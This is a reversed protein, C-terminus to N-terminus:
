RLPIDHTQKSDTTVTYKLDSTEPNGYHQPIPVVRRAPGSPASQDETAKGGPGKQQPMLTAQSPVSVSIKAEGPSVGSVSYTGDEGIDAGVVRQDSTLFRVTGVPLAQGQYTVKGSVTVTKKGCGSAAGLLLLAVLCSVGRSVTGVKVLM